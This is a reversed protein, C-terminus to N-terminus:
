KKTRKGSGAPAAAAKLKFSDAFKKFDAANFTAKPSVSILQYLRDDVLFLRAALKLGSTTSGDFERGPYKKKPLGSDLFVSFDKEVTGNVNAMAGDRAGELVKSPVAAGMMGPPYDAISVAYFAADTQLGWTTTKVDGAQTKEVGEKMEAAGPLEVTFTPADVTKWAVPQAFAAPAALLCLCLAALPRHSM